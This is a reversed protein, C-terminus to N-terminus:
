FESLARDVEVEKLPDSAVGSDKQCKTGM